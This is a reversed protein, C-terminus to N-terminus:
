EFIWRFGTRPGPPDGARPDIRRAVDTGAHTFLWMGHLGLAHAEEVFADMLLKGVGAARADETLEVEQLVLSLGGDPRTSRHGWAWGMPRGGDHVVFAITGPDALFAPDPRDDIGRFAALVGGLVADDAPSLRVIEM